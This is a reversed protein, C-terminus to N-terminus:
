RYPNVVRVGELVAGDQMDESYLTTCGALKAAAVIMADYINLQYREALSLGLKHTELTLPVVPCIARIGDLGIKVKPWPMRHKRRTVNVFEYLVQVSVTGGARLVRDSVDTKADESTAFYVLINTDFFVEAKSM